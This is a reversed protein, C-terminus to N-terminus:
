SRNLGQVKNFQATEMKHVALPIALKFVSGKGKESIFTIEGNLKETMEKAIYLGLGSGESNESARYFMDFIKHQVNQDIGQGNDAIEIHLWSHTSKANIKIYPSPKSLDHYKIANTILNNLIIKLRGQDASLLMDEDFDQIIEIGNRQDFYELGTLIQDILAKFSFEEESLELRSNRSYDIIDSIFGNLTKIRGKMLEMCKNVEQNNDSMQAINILGLMSSLPARLDHSTSYVFRDLEENTKELMKNKSKVEKEATKREHIDIVSGVMRVVNGEEDWQAQGSDLVWMYKGDAKRFRVELKFFGKKQLHGQISGIFEKRDDPHVINIAKERNIDRLQNLDYGLMDALLPSIYMSDKIADWDWIGASTGKIALEFRNRSDSLDDTLKILDRQSQHMQKEYNYNISLVYYIMTISAALCITFNMLFSNDVYEQALALHEIVIWDTFYVMYFTILTFGGIFLAPKKEEAGFLTISALAAVLFYMFMGTERTEWAALVGLAILTPIFISVKALTYKKFHLLIRCMVSGSFFLCYFPVYDYIGYAVDFVVYGVAVIIALIAIKGTLRARREDSWAGFSQATKIEKNEVLHSAMIKRLYANHGDFIVM